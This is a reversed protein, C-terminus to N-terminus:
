PLARQSGSMAPSCSTVVTVSLSVTVHERALQNLLYTPVASSDGFPQDHHHVLREVLEVTEPHAVAEHHETNFREAVARAFPREDFGDRDDFGITFTKVREGMEGAM